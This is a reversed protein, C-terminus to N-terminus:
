EPPHDRGALKSALGALAKVRVLWLALAIPGLVGIETVATRINIRMAAASLPHRRETVPLLDWGSMFWRHSFPWLAQIGFPPAPDAGLWDLLLHSGWAAACMFAIRRAHLRPVGGSLRAVVAAVVGATVGATVSHTWSRHMGPLLLDLDPAAALLACTLTLRGGAREYWPATRPAARWARDGPVLDSAWAVAAGALVHGLPSPM